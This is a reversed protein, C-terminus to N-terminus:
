SHHNIPVGTSELYEIMENIHEPTIWGKGCLHHIWGLLKPASNIRSFEIEYEFRAPMTATAPRDQLVINGTKPSIRIKTFEIM